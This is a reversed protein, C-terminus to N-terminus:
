RTSELTAQIEEVVVEVGRVDGSQLLDRAKDVQGQLYDLSERAARIGTEVNQLAQRTNEEWHFSLITPGGIGAYASGFVGLDAM